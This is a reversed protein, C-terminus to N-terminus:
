DVVLGSFWHNSNEDCKRSLLEDLLCTKGLVCDCEKGYKNGVEGSLDM